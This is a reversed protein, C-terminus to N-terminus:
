SYTVSITQGTGPSIVLGNTFPVNATGSGATAPTVFIVNSASADAVSAADHITGAASGAVSIVVNVLRGEGTAVLSPVTAGLYTSSGMVSNYLARFTELAATLANVAVVGNKQVTVLDDVNAM